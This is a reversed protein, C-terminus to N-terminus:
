CASHARARAIRFCAPAKGKRVTVKFTKVFASGSPPKIIVKVTMKVGKKKKAAAKSAKKNLTVTFPLGGQKLGKKVLKGVLTKKSPKGNFVDVELNSGNAAITASGFVKNAKPSQQLAAVFAGVTFTPPPPTTNTVPPSTTTTTTTTTTTPSPNQVPPPSYDSNVTECGTINDNVTGSFEGAVDAFVRDNGDGCNATDVQGDRMDIEDDGGLTNIVDGPGGGDYVTNSASNGTITDAGVGANVNEVNILHDNEGSQGNALTPTATDSGSLDITLPATREYYDVLDTGAGGDIVDSGDSGPTPGTYHTGPDVEDDGADGNLTDGGEGGSLFDADNGGNLTDGGLDGTLQDNGDGGSLTDIGDGGYLTDDGGNGTLTDAVDGGYLYNPNGDGTLTNAATNSGYVTEFNNVADNEGSQGGVHTSLNVTVAAGRQSYDLEDLGDGGDYSDTGDNASGLYLYDAGPGANLSDGAGTLDDLDDNGAGGTLTDAGPGGDIFDGDDGGDLTDASSGGNISDSGTGGNVTVPRDTATVGSGDFYDSQDDLNATLGTIISSCEITSPASIDPVTCAGGTGSVDISAVGDDTLTFENTGGDYSLTVQNLDGPSATYLLHGATDQVATAAGAPAAMALLAVLCVGALLLARRLMPSPLTHSM